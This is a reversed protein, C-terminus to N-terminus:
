ASRARTLSQQLEEELSPLDVADVAAQRPPATPVGRGVGSFAATLVSLGIAIVVPLGAAM